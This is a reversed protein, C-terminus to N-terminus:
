YLGYPADFYLMRLGAFLPEISEREWKCADESSPFTKEGRRLCLCEIGADEWGISYILKVGQEREAKEVLAEGALELQPIIATLSNDLEELLDRLESDNM